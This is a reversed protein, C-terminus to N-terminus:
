HFKINSIERKFRGSGIQLIQECAHACDLADIQDFIAFSTARSAEAEDFHLGSFFAGCGYRLEVTVFQGAARQFNVFGLRTLIAGLSVRARAELWRANTGVLLGEASKDTSPKKINM